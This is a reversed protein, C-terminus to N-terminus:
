RLMITVSSSYTYVFMIELDLIYHFKKPIISNSDGNFLPLSCLLVNEDQRFQRFEVTIFSNYFKLFESLKM